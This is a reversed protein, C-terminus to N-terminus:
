SAARLSRVSRLYPKHTKLIAPLQQMAQRASATDNFAGYLVNWRRRGAVRTEQLYLREMLPSLDPRELLSELAMPDDNETLLVQITLQRNEAHALWDSSAALRSSVLPAGAAPRILLMDEVPLTKEQPGTQSTEAVLMAPAPALDHTRQLALLTVSALTTAIGVALWTDMIRSATGSFESDAIAQNLHRPTVQHSRESYAALMAKDALIHIRRILGASARTLRRYAARTFLDSGRYGASHLRFRVYDAVDDATLPELKLSHTIRDRLQRLDNQALMRDLEPQGFLVLQLLKHQRTELNSLLRIAELTGAPMCQAEEIFVVVQRGGRHQELLYAQLRHQQDLRSGASTDLGLEHLIANVIEDASLGPNALYVVSVTEPLQDQLMRCLMTKGTGVEGTVKVIGEGSLIAYHLADLIAARQCGGFFRRTDPTIRFPALKLGFYQTYM